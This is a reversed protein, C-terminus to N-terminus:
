RLAGAGKMAAHVLSPELLETLGVRHKQSKAKAICLDLFLWPSYVALRLSKQLLDLAKSTPSVEGWGQYM